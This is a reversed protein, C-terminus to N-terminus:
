VGRGSEGGASPGTDIDGTLLRSSAAGLGYGTSSTKTPGRATFVARASRANGALGLYDNSTLNLFRRGQYTVRCGSRDALPRLQRFGGAKRWITWSKRYDISM